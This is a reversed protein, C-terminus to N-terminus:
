RETAWLPLPRRPVPKLLALKKLFVAVTVATPRRGLDRRQCKSLIQNLGESYRSGAGRITYAAEFRHTVWDVLDVGEPPPNFPGDDLRCIMQFCVGLAWIDSARSYTPTEPPVLIGAGAHEEIIFSHTATEASVGFDGVVVRPYTRGNSALFINGPKLDRHLVTVWGPVPASQSLHQPDRIGSHCYALADALSTVVHRIFGESIYTRREKFAGLINDLNGVSCWETYISARLPHLTVFADVFEIINEHRLRCMTEMEAVIVELPVDKPRLKKEVLLHGDSRRLVLFVGKNFVGQDRDGGTLNKLRHYLHEQSHRHITPPMTHILGVKGLLCLRCYSPRSQAAPPLSQYFTSLNSYGSALVPLIHFPKKAGLLEPVDSIIM